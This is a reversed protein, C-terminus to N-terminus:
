APTFADIPDKLGPVSQQPFRRWDIPLHDAIASSVLLSADLTKTLDQLRSAMNVAPGIVSFDLRETAGINGFMVDGHHIGVGFQLKSAESPHRALSAAGDRAAKLARQAADAIGARDSTPFIALFGDGMFKLVEGGEAMVAEAMSEFFQNVLTLYEAMEMQDALASSGRLDCIWIVAQIVDGDGRQNKGEMVQRAAVPGLYASLVDQLTQERKFIRATAHFLKVLRKLARIERDTFGGNQDTLWSSIIGDQQKIATEQNGFPTLIALYDTGGIAKFETFIPFRRVVEDSTLDCRYEDIVNEIMYFLPSQTWNPEAVQTRPRSNTLLEGTRNWTHDTHDIFPHMQRMTVHSRVLPFLTQDIKQSLETFVDTLSIDEFM